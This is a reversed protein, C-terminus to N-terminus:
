QERTRTQRWGEVACVDDRPELSEAGLRESFSWSKRHLDTLGLSTIASAHSPTGYGKHQEFGYGPYSAALETMREDRAVKALVSAAAVSGCSADARAVTRVELRGEPTVTGAETAGRPNVFDFTGDVILCSPQVPLTGLARHAAISLAATLGLADIETASVEGISWAVCWAGVRPSLESRAGVTLTKSDRTGTPASKTKADVLVVGVFMPGAWAGRGVEDLGGVIAHGQRLLSRELRLSATRTRTAKPKTSTDM